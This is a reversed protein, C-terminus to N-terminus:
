EKSDQVSFIFKGLLQELSQPAQSFEIRDGPELMIDDAGPELALYNGGLLSESSITAATDYPLQVKSDVSISVKALYTEPNLDLATVSGVKVGSIKVDDGAQLSGVGAFDISLDYGNPSGVNAKSYSSVLFFGATFLVIAGLATEIISRKM